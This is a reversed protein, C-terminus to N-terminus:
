CGRQRDIPLKYTYIYLFSSGEEAIGPSALQRSCGHGHWSPFRSCGKGNPPSLLRFFPVAQVRAGWLLAGDAGM